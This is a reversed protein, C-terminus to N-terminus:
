ILLYFLTIILYIGNAMFQSSSPKSDYSSDYSYLTKNFIWECGTKDEKLSVKYNSDPIEFSKCIAENELSEKYFKVQYSLKEESTCTGEDDSYTCNFGIQECITQYDFQVFLNCEKKTICKNKGESSVDYKCTKHYNNEPIIAECDDKDGKDYSECTKFHEDCKNNIYACYKVEHDKILPSIKACLIPNGDADSCEKPIRQCGINTEYECKSTIITENGEENYPRIRRCINPDNGRYDSCYKYNEFCEYNSSQSDLLGDGNSDYLRYDYDCVKKEPNSVGIKEILKCEEKTTADSCKKDFAKCKDSVSECKKQSYTKISSCNRTIDNENYDECKKYEEYCKGSSRSGDYFCVKNEDTAKAYNLCDTEGEVDSCNFIREKCKSDKDLICYRNTTPSLISECINKDDEEYAECSQYISREKCIDDEVIYVCEKNADTLKIMECRARTKEIESESYAQCSKYEEYCKERTQNFACRKNTSDSVDLNTCFADSAESGSYEECKIDKDECKPTGSNSNYSCKKLYDYEKHDSTLPKKMNCNYKNMNYDTNDCSIYEELCGSGTYICAKKAPNSTDRIKLQSCIAKSPNLVQQDCYKKTPNCTRDGESWQCKNVDDTLIKGECTSQTNYSSCANYHAECDGSSTLVCKDGNGAASLEECVDGEINILDNGYLYPTAKGFDVCEKAVEECKRTSDNYKCKKKHFDSPVLTKCKSENEDGLSCLNTQICKKDPINYLCGNNIGTCARNLINNFEKQCQDDGDQSFCYCLLAFM